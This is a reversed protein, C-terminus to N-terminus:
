KLSALYALLDAAQQVTLDRLQLEPMISKPQKILQEVDDTPIRVLENKDNRLVVQKDSKEVLLGTYLRGQATEVLWLAFKEDVTKSPDIISELLKSRDLKGAIHTLDPGLETGKGNIRHCNRCQLGPANFFFSEGRVADAPINLLAQPNFNTGLRHARQEEPLFREFLDSIVPAPHQSGQRIVAEAVRAPLRNNDLAEVLLLAGNTTTLLREILAGNSEDRQAGGASQNRLLDLSQGLTAELKATARAEDAEARDRPLSGIWERFMQVGREDVVTSGLHPMRGRGLKSTRYLIVSRHPDGCAVLRADVIGFNGQLPEVDFLRTKEAETIFELEMKANGGGDAVHCHSCNAHLYSRARDNLDAQPDYPNALRRYEEPFKKMPRAFMGIHELTRLQSDPGNPYNHDCNMQLTSLGLVWNAARSHCGMCETRSPYHWTHKRVGGPIRGDKITLVEDFGPADVLLADTQEDNWRYTYAEWQGEQRTLLRTEIRRRSEPRDRDTALSVNQMLVSGDPLNWGRNATIEILGNAPIAMYRELEAGDTWVPANVFYAIVGPAPVLNTTESFLGTASLARPFEAVANNASKNPELEFIEGSLAVLYLEGAHDRGFTAVRYTSDALLRHDSVKDNEYRFAWVKGTEYDCYLYHGLLEPHRAARYVFGGTISRSETHHHEVIPPIVASPGLPRQTLFPHNGERVSWGYNGGRRILHIMEWLDQGVEGVWLNGTVPDFSMRWPQRLGFAWLEPRAEPVNLIPNDSPVSYARGHDPHDVDIRLISAPIDTVDQGTNNTDSGSTGDGAGIYLYGDPGFALGGGDHGASPWRIILTESAPDIRQPHARSVHYRVIELHEDSNPKDKDEIKTERSLFTFLYGNRVFDPHFALSLLESRIGATTNVDFFEGKEAANPSDDFTFIKGQYQAVFLRNTGPEPVLDVPESFTLREFRRALRYPLPPEPSGVVRSTTWPIRKDLGFPKKAPDAVTTASTAVPEAAPLPVLSPNGGVFALWLIAVSVPKIREPM